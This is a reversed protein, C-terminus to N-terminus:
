PNVWALYFGAIKACLLGGVLWGLITLFSLNFSTYTIWM